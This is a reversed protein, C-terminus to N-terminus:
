ANKRGFYDKFARLPLLACGMRQFSVDGFGIKELYAEESISLIEKIDKDKIMETFKNSSIMSLYCGDGEFSADEVKGNKEDIKLYLRIWDGCHESNHMEIIVNANPLKRKKISRVMKLIKEIM